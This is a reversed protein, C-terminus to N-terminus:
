IIIVLKKVPYYLIMMSPFNKGMYHLSDEKELVSRCTMFSLILGQMEQWTLTKMSKWLPFLIRKVYWSDCLLIVTKKTHLEPMVQRVM